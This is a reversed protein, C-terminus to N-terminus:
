PRRLNLILEVEGQTMDFVEAIEDAKLGKQALASVGRRRLDVSDGHSAGISAARAVLAEVARAKEDLRAELASLAGVREDIRRFLKGSIEEIEALELTLRERAPDAGSADKRRFM